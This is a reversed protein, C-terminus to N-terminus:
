FHLSYGFLLAKLQMMLGHSEAVASRDRSKEINGLAELLCEYHTQFLHVAM